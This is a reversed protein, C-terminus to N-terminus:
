VSRRTSRFEDDARESKRSKESRSGADGPVGCGAWNIDFENGEPDSMAVGYHDLGEEMTAPRRTAGLSVLRAAEAEILQRRTELATDRGGSAHV